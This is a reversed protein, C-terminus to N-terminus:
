SSHRPGPLRVAASPMVSACFRSTASERRREHDVILAIPHAEDLPRRADADRHAGLMRPAARDSAAAGDRAGPLRSVLGISCRIRERESGNAARKAAQKM